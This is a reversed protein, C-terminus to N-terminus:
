VARDCTFPFMSCCGKQSYDADSYILIIFCCPFVEYKTNFGKILQTITIGPALCKKRPIDVSVPTFDDRHAKPPNGCCSFSILDNHDRIVVGCNCTIGQRNCAWQKTQVQFIFCLSKSCALTKPHRRHFICSVNVGLGFIESFQKTENKRRTATTISYSRLCSIQFYTLFFFSIKLSVRTNSHFAFASVKIEWNLNRSLLCFRFEFLFHSSAELSLYEM